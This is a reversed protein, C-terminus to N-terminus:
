MEMTQLRQDVSHLLNVCALVISGYDGSQLNPDKDESKLQLSALPRRATDLPRVNPSLPHVPYVERIKGQAIFM